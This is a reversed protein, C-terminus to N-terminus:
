SLFMSGEFSLTLILKDNAKITFKKGSDVNLIWQLENSVKEPGVTPAIRQVKITQGSYKQGLTFPFFHGDPEDASFDTFDTVHKFTGVVSGDEYIIPTGSMLEGATKSTSFVSQGVAPVTM